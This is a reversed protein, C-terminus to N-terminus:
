YAETMILITDVQGKMIQLAIVMAVSAFNKKGHSFMAKRQLNVYLSARYTGTMILITDVQGKMIQLAKVMATSAYNNNSHSFM